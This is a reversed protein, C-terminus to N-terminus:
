QQVLYLLEVSAHAAVFMYSQLRLKYQTQAEPMSPRRPLQFYSIRAVYVDTFTIDHWCYIKWTLYYSFESKMTRNEVKTM